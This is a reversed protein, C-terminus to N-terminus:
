SIGFHTEMIERIDGTGHVALLADAAALAAAVALGGGAAALALARAGAAGDAGTELAALHGKVALERVAAEVVVLEAGAVGDDVDAVQGPEVLLDGLHVGLHQRLGAQHARADGHELDEAVAFDGARELDGGLLEGTRGLGLELLGAALGDRGSGPLAGAENTVGDSERMNEAKALEM